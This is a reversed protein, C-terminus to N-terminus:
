SLGSAVLWCDYPINKATSLFPLAARLHGAFFIVIYAPHICAVRGAVPHIRWRYTSGQVGAHSCRWSANSRSSILRNASHEFHVKTHQPNTGHGGLCNIAPRRSFLSLRTWTKAHKAKSPSCATTGLALVLQVGRGHIGGFCADRNNSFFSCYDLSRPPVMPLSPNTRNPARKLMPFYLNYGGSRLGALDDEFTDVIVVPMRPM